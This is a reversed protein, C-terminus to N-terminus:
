RMMPMINEQWYNRAFFQEIKTIKEYEGILLYYLNKHKTEKHTIIFNILHEKLDNLNNGIFSCYPCKLIGSHHITIIHQRLFYLRPFLKKCFPCRLAQFITRLRTVSVSLKNEKALFLEKKVNNRHKRSLLYFLNQHYIDSKNLAHMRLTDLDKSIHSCYPCKIDKTDHFKSIHAKLIYMKEYKKDCFPCSYM